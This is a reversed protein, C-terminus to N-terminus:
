NLNHYFEKNVEITIQSSMPCVIARKETSYNEKLDNIEEESENEEKMVFFTTMSKKLDEM